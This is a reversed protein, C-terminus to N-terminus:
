CIISFVSRCVVNPIEINTSGGSGAVYMKTTIEGNEYVTAVINPVYDPHASGNSTIAGPEIPRPYLKNVKLTCTAVTGSGTSPLNNITELINQLNTTNNTLKSM